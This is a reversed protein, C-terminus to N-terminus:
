KIVRVEKNNIIDYIAEQSYMKGLFLATTLDNVHMSKDIWVKGTLQDTWVGVTDGPTVQDLTTEEFAVWYGSPKDLSELGEETMIYTGDQMDTSM